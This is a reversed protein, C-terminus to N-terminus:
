QWELDDPELETAEAATAPPADFWDLVQEDAEDMPKLGLKNMFSYLFDAGAQTWYSHEVTDPRGDKRVIKFVKRKMYSRQQYNDTLVWRGAGHQGGSWKIIKHAKLLQNFAPASMGYEKAISTSTYLSSGKFRNVPRVGSELQQVRKRLAQCERLLREGNDWMQTVVRGTEALAGNVQERTVTEM